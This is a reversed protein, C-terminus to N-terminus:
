VSPSATLLVISLTLLAIFHNVLKSEEVCFNIPLNANPATAAPGNTNINPLITLAIPDISVTIPGTIPPKPPKNVPIALTVLPPIANAVTNGLNLPAKANIVAGIPIAIAAIMPIPVANVTAYALDS